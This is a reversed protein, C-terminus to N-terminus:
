LRAIFDQLNEGRSLNLKKRLRYRTTHVSETSIGLLRAMDKSSFNLKILACIKQDGQSLAPFEEKLKQYFAKNVSIFRTEFEEWNKTTSLNISKIIKGIDNSSPNEKQGIFKSKLESLLEEREIVQLASATLEKNKIELIENAKQLELEQKKRLIKKEAKHKTRLSRYILIGVIILSIIAGFLVIKELLDIQDAQELQSLRQERILDNQRNKEIRFEDKIELLCHNSQCRGGFQRENEKKSLTLYKYAQKYKSQNFYINSVNEYIEPLFDAHSGYKKAASISRLYYSKSKELESITRYIDGIFSLLIVQYSNNGEKFINELPHLIKLGEKADGDLFSLYGREADLFALTNYNELVEPTVIKCSDLYLRAMRTNKEKRYLTALAYYIDRTALWGSESSDNLKKRISLAQNFYQIAIENRWYLSYLWGLGVYVSAKSKENGIEDALLLATWYADYSDAFFAQHAYLDSIGVLAKILNVTDRSESYHRISKKFYVQSSDPDKFKFGLAKEFLVEGHSTVIDDKVSHSVSLCIHCSIIFFFLVGHRTAQTYM